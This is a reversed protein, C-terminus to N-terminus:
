QVSACHILDCSKLIKKQYFFLAIKKKWKKQSLSWPEYLGLTHNIIKKKLLKSIMFILIYFFNWGGFLHILDSSYIKFLIDFFSSNKLDIIDSKIKKKKLEKNIQIISFFPGGRSPDM